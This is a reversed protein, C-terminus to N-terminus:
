PTPASSSTCRRSTSCRPPSSPGRGSRPTALRSAASGGSCGSSGAAPRTMDFEAEAAVLGKVQDLRAVDVAHALATGGTGEIQRVPAELRDLRSAGIVVRAGARALVKATRARSCSSAGTIVM